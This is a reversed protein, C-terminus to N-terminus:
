GVTLLANAEPNARDAGEKGGGSGSRGKVFFGVLGPVMCGPISFAGGHGSGKPVPVPCPLRSVSEVQVGGSGMRFSFSLPYPDKPERFSSM